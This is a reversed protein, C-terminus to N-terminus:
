VQPPHFVGDLHAEKVIFISHNTELKKKLVYVVENETSLLENKEAIVFVPLQQYEYTKFPLQRDQEYDDDFHIPMTYHMFYFQDWTMEPYDALHEFYHVVVLPAKVLEKMPSFSFLCIVVLMRAM